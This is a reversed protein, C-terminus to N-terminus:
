NKKGIENRAFKSVESIDKLLNDPLKCYLLETDPWIKGKSKNKFFKFFEKNTLIMLKKDAKVLSLYYLDMFVSKWTGVGVKGNLRTTSSKIDGIISLDQSVIDFRHKGGTILKLETDNKFFQKNYKNTLWNRVFDEVPKKLKITNAM